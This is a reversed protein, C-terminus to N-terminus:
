LATPSAQAFSMDQAPRCPRSLPRGVIRPITWSSGSTVGGSVLRDLCEGTARAFPDLDLASLRRGRTKAGGDALLMGCGVFVQDVQEGCAHAEDTLHREHFGVLLQGREVALPLRWPTGANLKRDAQRPVGRVFTSSKAESSM